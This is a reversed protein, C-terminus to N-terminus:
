LRATNALGLSHACRAVADAVAAHVEPSLPSPVVEGQQVCGAIAEAAAIFMQPLLTRARAQIAGKFIGPFVLANNIHAGDAAYAAGAARALDPEIEPYPNSLAFLVQGKRIMEPKILGVKGTTCIVVDATAMIADLTSAQAGDEVLRSVMDANVDTVMVSKAGYAIALRAIASLPDGGAQGFGPPRHADIVGAERGFQARPM